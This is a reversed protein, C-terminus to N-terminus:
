GEIVEWIKSLDALALDIVSLADIVGRSTKLDLGDFSQSTPVASVSGLARSVDGGLGSSSFTFFGRSSLTLAGGTTRTEAQGAGRPTLGLKTAEGYADVTINRGDIAMLRLRGDSSATAQVGTQNSVANIAGALVGDADGEQITLGTIEVDNVRFYHAQSLTMAETSRDSLTVTPGAIATVGHQSTSANIAGAKALASGLQDRVSVDDDKPRAGRIPIREGSASQILLDGDGLVVSRDVGGQSQASTFRGLQRTVASSFVLGDDGVAGREPSPRLRSSPQSAGLVPLERERLRRAVDELTSQLNERDFSSAVQAALAIEKMERVLSEAERIAGRVAEQAGTSSSNVSASNLQRVLKNFSSGTPNPTIEGAGEAIGLQTKVGQAEVYAAGLQRLASVSAMVSASRRQAEEVSTMMDRLRDASEREKTKQEALRGAASEKQDRKRERIRESAGEGVRSPEPPMIPVMSQQLVNLPQQASQQSVSSLMASSALQTIASVSRDGEARVDVKLKEQLLDRQQTLTGELRNSIDELEAQALSVRRQYSELSEQANGTYTVARQANPQTTLDIQGVATQDNLALFASTLNGDTGPAEPTSGTYTVRGLLNDTNVDLLEVSMSNASSLTLKGGFTQDLSEFTDIFFQDGAYVRGATFSVYVGDDLLTPGSTVALGTVEEGTDARTYKFRAAGDVDGTDTIEITFTTPSIANSYTGSAVPDGTYGRVQFRVEDGVEFAGNQDFDLTLGNLISVSSNLLYTPSKFEHTVNAKIVDGIEFRGLTNDITYLSGQQLHESDVFASFDDGVAFSENFLNASFLDNAQLSHQNVLLVQEDTLQSLSPLSSLQLIYQDDIGRDLDTVVLDFGPDAGNNLLASVAAQALDITGDGAVTVQQQGTLDLNSVNVTTTSELDIIFRDNVANQENTLNIVVDGPSGDTFLPAFTADSLTYSPLLELGEITTVGDSFSVSPDVGLIAFEDDFALLPQDVVLTIDPSGEDFIPALLADNLDFTGQSRDGNLTLAVEVRNQQSGGSQKYIAITPDISWNLQFQDDVADGENNLLLDFGPDGQTFFTTALTGSALDFVGGSSELTVSAGGNPDTFTYDYIERATFTYQQGISAASVDLDFGPDGAAFLSSFVLDGLDLIGGSVHDSFRAEVTSKSGGDPTVELRFKQSNVRWFLIDGFFTDNSVGSITVNAPTSTSNVETSKAVSIDLTLDSYARNIDQSGSSTSTISFSGDDNGGDPTVITSLRNLYEIRIDDGSNAGTYTGTLTLTTGDDVGDAGTSLQSVQTAPDTGLQLTITKDGYIGNYVNAGVSASVGDNGSVVQRTVNVNTTNTFSFLLEDNDNNGNYSAGGELAITGFDDNGVAGDLSISAGSVNNFTITLGEGINFTQGSVPQITTTSLLAGTNESVLKVDLNSSQPAVDPIQMTAASSLVIKVDEGYTFLSPDLTLDITGNYGGISLAPLSTISGQDTGDNAILTIASSPNPLQFSIGRELSIDGERAVLDGTYAGAGGFRYELTAYDNRGVESEATGLVVGERKVRLELTTEGLTGDYAGVFQATGYDQYHDVPDDSLAPTVSTVGIAPPADPFDFSIGDAVFIDGANLTVASVSVQVGDKKTVYQAEGVSGAQTIVVSYTAAGIGTFDNPSSSVTVDRVYTGTTSEIVDSFIPLDTAFSIQQGNGIDILSGGSVQVPTGFAVGDHYVQVTAQPTGQTRGSSMVEVTTQSDATGNYTGLVTVASDYEHGAALSSTLQSNRTSASLYLTVDEGTYTDAINIDILADAVFSGVVGDGQTTTVEFEAREDGDTTGAKTATILYERDLGENYSGGAVGFGGTSFFDGGVLSTDLSPDVTGEIFAFDEVASLESAPDRDIRLEAVGFSGGTVVHAVFDIYDESADFRGGVSVGGIYSQFDSTIPSQVEGQLSRDPSGLEVAGFLNALNGEKDTVGIANLVEQNSYKVSINRGDEATLSLQGNADLSATVGTFRTEANIAEQLSQFNSDVDGVSIGNIVSGNLTFYNLGTLEVASVARNGTISTPGAEATVGTLYTATNIALAKAIASGSNYTTSLPDDDATTPRIAVENIILSGDVLPSTFVGNRQSTYIARKGLEEVLLDTLVIQTNISLESSGQIQISGSQTLDLGYDDGAMKVAIDIKRLISQADEQLEGRQLDTFDDSAAQEAVVRLTLLLDEVLNLDSTLAQTFTIGENLNRLTRQVGSIATETYVVSGIAGPDDGASEIAVGSAVRKVSSKLDNIARRTQELVAATESGVNIKLM